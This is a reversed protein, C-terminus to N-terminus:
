PRPDRGRIPYKLRLRISSTCCTSQAQISPALRRRSSSDSFVLSFFSRASFSSSTSAVFSTSEFFHYRGGPLSRDHSPQRFMELQAFSLCSVQDPQTAGSIAILGFRPSILGKTPPQIGQSRVMGPVTIQQEM